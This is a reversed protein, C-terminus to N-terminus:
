PKRPARGAFRRILRWINYGTAAIVTGISLVALVWGLGTMMRNDHAAVSLRGDGFAGHEPRSPHLNRWEAM